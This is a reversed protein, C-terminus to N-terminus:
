KGTGGYFNLIRYQWGKAVEGVSLGTEYPSLVANSDDSESQHSRANRLVQYSNM